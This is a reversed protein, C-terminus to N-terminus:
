YQNKKLFLKLSKLHTGFVFSFYKPSNWRGQCQIFFETLAYTNLISKKLKHMFNTRNKVYFYIYMTHVSHM